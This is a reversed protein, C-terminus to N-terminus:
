KEEKTNSKEEEKQLNQLEKMTMCAIIMCIFVLMTALAFLIQVIKM